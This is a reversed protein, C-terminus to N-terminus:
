DKGEGGTSGGTRIIYGCNPCVVIRQRSDINQEGNSVQETSRKEGVEELYDEDVEKMDVRFNELIRDIEQSDFGTLLLDYGHEELDALIEELSIYDWSAWEQSKNDSLSFAQAEEESSFDVYIVPVKEIGLRRAAKLRTHGARIVGDPTAIIPQVFGYQSILNALKEAAKDNKRPNKEWEKLQDVSVYVVNLKREPM